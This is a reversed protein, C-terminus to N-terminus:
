PMLGLLPANYESFNDHMLRGTGDTVAVMPANTMYRTTIRVARQFAEESDLGGFAEISAKLAATYMHYADLGRGTESALDERFTRALLIGATLSAALLSLVLATIVLRASLRM